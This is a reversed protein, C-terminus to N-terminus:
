IRSYLINTFVKKQEASWFEMKEGRRKEGWNLQVTVTIRVIELAKAAIKIEIKIEITVKEEDAALAAMEDTTDFELAEDKLYQLSFPLLLLRLFPNLLSFLDIHISLFSYCIFPCYLVCINV